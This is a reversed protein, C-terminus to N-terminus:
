KSDSYIEQYVLLEKRWLTAPTHLQGALDTNSTCSRFNTGKLCDWKAIRVLGFTIKRGKNYAGVECRIAYLLPGVISSTCNRYYPETVRSIRWCHSVPTRRSDCFATCGRDYQYTAAEQEDEEPRIRM